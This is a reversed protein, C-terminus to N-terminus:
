EDVGYKIRNREDGCSDCHCNKWTFESWEKGDRAAFCDPLPTCMECTGYTADLEDETCCADCGDCHFECAEHALDAMINRDSDSLTRSRYRATFVEDMADNMKMRNM